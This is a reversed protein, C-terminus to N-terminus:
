VSTTKTNIPEFRDAVREVSGASDPIIFATFERGPSTIGYGPMYVPTQDGLQQQDRLADVLSGNAFGLVYIREKPGWVRANLNDIYQGGGHGGDCERYSRSLNFVQNCRACLILKM